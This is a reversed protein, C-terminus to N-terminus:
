RFLQAECALACGIAREIVAKTYTRLLRKLRSPPPPNGIDNKLGM